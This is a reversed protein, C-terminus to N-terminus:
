QHYLLRTERMECSVLFCFDNFKMEALVSPREISFSFVTNIRKLGWGRILAWRSYAGVRFTSLTLLRGCGGGWGLFTSKLSGVGFLRGGGGGPFLFLIVIFHM